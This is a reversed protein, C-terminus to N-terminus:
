TTPEAEPERPATRVIFMHGCASCRYFAVGNTQMLHERHDGRGCRPCSDVSASAVEDISPDWATKMTWGRGLLAGLPGRCDGPLSNPPVDIAQQAYYELQAM